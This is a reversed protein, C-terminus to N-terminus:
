LIDDIIESKLEIEKQPNVNMYEKEEASELQYSDTTLLIKGDSGDMTTIHIPNYNSVGSLVPQMAFQRMMDRQREREYQAEQYRMQQEVYSKNTFGRSRNWPANPDDATNSM